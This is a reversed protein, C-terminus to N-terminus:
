PVVKAYDDISKQIDVMVESRYSSNANYWHELLDYIGQDTYALESVAEVIKGDLTTREMELLMKPIKLQQEPTTEFPIM